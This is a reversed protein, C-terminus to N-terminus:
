ANFKSELTMSVEDADFGMKIMTDVMVGIAKDFDFAPYVIAQFLIDMTESLNRQTNLM